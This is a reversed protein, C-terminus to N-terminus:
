VLLAAHVRMRTSAGEDLWQGQLRRTRVGFAVIAACQAIDLRSERTM